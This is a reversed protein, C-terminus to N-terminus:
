KIAVSSENFADDDDGAKSSYESVNQNSRSMRDSASEKDEQVKEKLKRKTEETIFGKKVAEELSYEKGDRPDKILIARKRKHIKTKRKKKKTGFCLQFCTKKQQPFIEFNDFIIIKM